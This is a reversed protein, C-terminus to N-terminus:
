VCALYTFLSWQPDVNEKWRAPVELCTDSQGYSAQPLLYVIIVEGSEYKKMRFALNQVQTTIPKDYPKVISVVATTAYTSIRQNLHM